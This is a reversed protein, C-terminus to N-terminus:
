FSVSAGFMNWNPVTGYFNPYLEGGDYVKVSVLVILMNNHVRLDDNSDLTNLYTYMSVDKNGKVSLQAKQYLNEGLSIEKRFKEQNTEKLSRGRIREAKPRRRERTM